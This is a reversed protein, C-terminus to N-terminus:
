PFVWDVPPFEPQEVPISRKSEEYTRARDSQVSKTMLNKEEKTVWRSLTRKKANRESSNINFLSGDTGKSQLSQKNDRRPSQTINENRIIGKETILHTNDSIQIDELNETFAFANRGVHIVKDSLSVKSVATGSFAEDDICKLSEPLHFENAHAVSVLFFASLLIFLVLISKRISM